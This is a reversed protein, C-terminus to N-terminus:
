WATHYVFGDLIDTGMGARGVTEVGEQERGSPM